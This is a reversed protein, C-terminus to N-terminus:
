DEPKAPEDSKYMEQNPIPNTSLLSEKLASELDPTIPIAIGFNNFIPRVTASLITDDPMVIKLIFDSKSDSQNNSQSDSQSNSQNNSQSTSLMNEDELLEPSTLQQVPILKAAFVTGNYNLQINDLNIAPAFVKNTTFLILM